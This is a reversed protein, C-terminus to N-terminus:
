NKQKFWSRMITKLQVPYLLLGIKRISIKKEQKPYVTIGLAKFHDVRLAPSIDSGLVLQGKNILIEALGSMGIGNIGIFYYTKKDM